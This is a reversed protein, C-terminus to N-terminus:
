FKINLQRLIPVYEKMFKNDPVVHNHVPPEHALIILTELNVRSKYHKETFLIQTSEFDPKHGTSIKDPSCGTAMRHQVLSNTLINGKLNSKHSSIRAKLKQKTQGVYTAKCKDDSCPIRYIVNKQELKSTCTHKQDVAVGPLTLEKLNTHNSAIM